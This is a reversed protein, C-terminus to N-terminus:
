FRGDYDGSPELWERLREICRTLSPSHNRAEEPDWMDRVFRILPENYNRGVKATSGQRPLIDDRLARKRSRGVLRMLEEKPENLLDPLDSINVRSIGLFKAFSEGDALLWSEITRVAVRLLFGHRPEERLWDSILDPPCPKRDLDTLMLVHYHRNPRNVNPALKKLEGFGESINCEGIALDPRYLVALKLAVAESLTDETKIHILIM